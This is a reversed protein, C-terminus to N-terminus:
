SNFNGAYLECPLLYDNYHRELTDKTPQNSSQKGKALAKLM